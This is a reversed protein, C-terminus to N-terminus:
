HQFVPFNYGSYQMLLNSLYMHLQDIQQTYSPMNADMEENLRLEYM